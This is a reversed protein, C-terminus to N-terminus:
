GVPSHNGCWSCVWHNSFRIWKHKGDGHGSKQCGEDSPVPDDIEIKMEPKGVVRFGNADGEIHLNEITVKLKM